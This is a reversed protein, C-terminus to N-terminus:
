WASRVSKQQRASGHRCQAVFNQKNRALYQHHVCRGPLANTKGRGSDRIYCFLAEFTCECMCECADMCVSPSTHMSGFDRIYDDSKFRGKIGVGLLWQRNASEIAVPAPVHSPGLPPAQHRLATLVLVSELELLKHVLQIAANVPLLYIYICVYINIITYRRHQM